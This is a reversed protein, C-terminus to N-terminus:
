AVVGRTVYLLHHDIFRKVNIQNHTACLMLLKGHQLM